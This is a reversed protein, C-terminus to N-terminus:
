ARRPYQYHHPRRRNGHADAAAPGLAEVDEPIARAPRGCLVTFHVLLQRCDLASGPVGDSVLGYLLARDDGAADTRLGCDDAPLLYEADPPPISGGQRPAPYRGEHAVAAAKQRM